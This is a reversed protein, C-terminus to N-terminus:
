PESGRGELEVLAAAMAVTDQAANMPRMRLAEAAEASVVVSDLVLPHPEPATPETDTASLM